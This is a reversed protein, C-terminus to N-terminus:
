EIDEIGKLLEDQWMASVSKEGSFSLMWGCLMWGRKVDKLGKPLGMVEDENANSDLLAQADLALVTHVEAPCSAESIFSRATALHSIDFSGAKM